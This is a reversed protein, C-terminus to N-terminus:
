CRYSRGSAPRSAMAHSTMKNSLSLGMAAGLTALVIYATLAIFAGALVAGWSIRSRVPLVDSAQITAM